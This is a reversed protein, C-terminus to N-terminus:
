RVCRLESEITIVTSSVTEIMRETSSVRMEVLFGDISALFQNHYIEIEDEEIKFRMKGKQNQNQTTNFRLKM